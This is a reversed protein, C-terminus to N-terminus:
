INLPKKLHEPREGFFLKVLNEVKARRPEKGKALKLAEPSEIWKIFMEATTRQFKKEELELARQQNVLMAEKIELAKTKSCKRILRLCSISLAFYAGAHTPVLTM